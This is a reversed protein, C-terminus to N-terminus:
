TSVMFDQFGDKSFAISVKKEVDLLAGPISSSYTAQITVKNVGAVGTAVAM